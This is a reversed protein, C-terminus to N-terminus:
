IFGMTVDLVGAFLKGDHPPFPTLQATNIENITQALDRHFTSDM